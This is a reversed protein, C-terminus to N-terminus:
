YYRRRERRDNEASQMAEESMYQQCDTCVIGTDFPHVHENYHRGCAWCKDNTKKRTGTTAPEASSPSSHTSGRPDMSM